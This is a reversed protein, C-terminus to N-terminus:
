LSQATSRCRWARRPSGQTAAQVRYSVPAVTACMGCGESGPTQIGVGDLRQAVGRLSVARGCGVHPTGDPGAGGSRSFDLDGRSSWCPREVEQPVPRRAARGDGPHLLDGRVHDPRWRGAAADPVRRLTGCCRGGRGCGEVFQRAEGGRRRPSVPSRDAFRAVALSVTTVGVVAIVLWHGENPSFLSFARLLPAHFLTGGVLTAICLTTLIVAGLGRIRHALLLVVAALLAILAPIAALMEM